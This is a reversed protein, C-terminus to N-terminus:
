LQFTQHYSSLAGEIETTSMWIFHVFNYCAQAIGGGKTKVVNQNKIKIYKLVM